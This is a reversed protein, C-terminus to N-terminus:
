EEDILARFTVVSHSTLGDPDDLHRSSEHEISVLRYGTLVLTGNFNLLSVIAGAIQKAEVKGVSRSWVDLTATIEVSGELCEAHDPIVQDSGLSVYPFTPQPPVRDYVRAGILAGVAPWAKLAAVIAGQLALSPESM